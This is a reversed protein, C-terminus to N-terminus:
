SYSFWLSFLFKFDKRQVFVAKRKAFVFDSNPNFSVYIFHPTCQFSKRTHSSPSFNFKLRNSVTGLINFFILSQSTRVCALLAMDIWHENSTKVFMISTSINRALRDCQDVQVDIQFDDVMNSIRILVSREPMNLYVEVWLKKVQWCINQPQLSRPQVIRWTKILLARFYRHIDRISHLSLNEEM